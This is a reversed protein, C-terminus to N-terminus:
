IGSIVQRAEEMDIGTYYNAEAVDPTNGFLKSVMIINGGSNNVAKTLANRRFSHTGKICDRSLPIDLKVCMRRYLGSLVNNSIVKAGRKGPFLFPSYLNKRTHVGRIGDIIGKVQDTIPFYRIKYTKTHQLIEFHEKKCYESRKVTIQEKSIVVYNDKIDSWMLPPVEGRRLGMAIQLEIAYTGLYNPAEEQRQHIFELMRQIEEETHVREEVSRPKMLMAGFRSFNVRAYVNDVIWYREYALSFVSKIISKIDGFAREALNYRDLNYYVIDEIDGKTIDHIIKKEFETGAFYRKYSSAYRSITNQISFIKEQSKVYKLRNEQVINFVDKFTNDTKEFRIRNMGDNGCSGKCTNNFNYHCTNNNTYNVIFIM